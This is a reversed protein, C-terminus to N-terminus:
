SRRPAFILYAENDCAGVVIKEVYRELGENEMLTEKDLLLRADESLVYAIFSYANVM